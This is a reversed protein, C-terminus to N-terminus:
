KGLGGAGNDFSSRRKKAGGLVAAIVSHAVDEPVLADGEDGRSSLQVEATISAYKTMMDNQWDKNAKFNSTAFVTDGLFEGIREPAWRIAWGPTEGPPLVEESSMLGGYLAYHTTLAVTDGQKALFFLFTCLFLVPLIAIIRDPWYEFANDEIVMKCLSFFATVALPVFGFISCDNVMLLTKNTYPAKIFAPFNAISVSSATNYLITSSLMGFASMISSVTVTVFIPIDFWSFGPGGDTRDGIRAIGAFEIIFQCGITFTLLTAVNYMGLFRLVHGKTEAPDANADAIGQFWFSTHEAGTEPTATALHKILDKDSISPTQIPATYLTPAPVATALKIKLQKKVLGVLRAQEIKSSVGLEAFGDHTLSLLTSGDVNSAFFAAHLATSSPQVQLLWNTTQAVTWHLM